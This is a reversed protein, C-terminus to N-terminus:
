SSKVIPSGFLLDKYGLKDLYEAVLSATRFETWATEAYKHFDRRYAIIKETLTQSIM